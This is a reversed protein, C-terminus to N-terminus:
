IQTFTKTNILWETLNTEFIETDIENINEKTFTFISAGYKEIIEPTKSDRSFVGIANQDTFILDMKETFGGTDFFNYRTGKFKPYGKNSGSLPESITNKYVGIVVGEGNIGEKFLQKERIYDLIEEKYKKAIKAAEKPVQKKLEQLEKIKNRIM